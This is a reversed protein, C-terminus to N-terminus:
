SVLLKRFRNVCAEWTVENSYHLAKKRMAKRLTEDQLYNEFVDAAEDPTADPDFRLSAGDMLTDKLGQHYFGAVPVGTRLFELTSIGLAESASFLCGIDCSSIAQVFKDMGSQKNIFGTCDIANDAALDPPKSGIFKIKVRYGRKALAAQVDMLFPLGKRKWDKGVFGLVLDRDIGPIGQIIPAKWDPPLLINAGPLIHVIKTRDVQYYDALTPIVWSSRTVVYRAAHYNEREQALAKELIYPPLKIAYSPNDVLDRMTADIYCIMEGGSRQMASARPFVQSFTIILEKYLERPVQRDIGDLFNRSYQYGGIGRGLVLQKLNWLRRTWTFKSLDLRVPDTFLGQREGEHFFFWPLNSHCNIDLVDGIAVIGIRTM